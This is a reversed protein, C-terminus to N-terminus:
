DGEGFESGSEDSECGGVDPSYTECDHEFDDNGLGSTGVLEGNGPDPDLPSTLLIPKIYFKM